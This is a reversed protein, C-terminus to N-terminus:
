ASTAPLPRARTGTALESLNMAFRRQVLPVQGALRFGLNRAARGIPTRVTAARTLRHTTRIVGQAVPRRQAEYSDLQASSGQDDLADALIAALAIADQIGTNMGQGGAPSHVHAADGALLVPGRRYTDALRHHVRFRSSWV